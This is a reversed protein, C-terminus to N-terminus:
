KAVNFKGKSVILDKNKLNYLYAGSNLHSVNLTKTEKLEIEDVLRGSIDLIEISTATTGQLRISLEEKVPNPYISSSYADTEYIGVGGMQFSIDDLYLVSGPINTVTNSSVATMTLTDPAGPDTYTITADVLTYANQISTIQYEMEGVPIQVNNVNDWRTLTLGVFSTDNTAPGGKYYFLVRAPRQTFGVNSIGSFFDGTGSMLYGTLTDGSTGVTTELKAAYTGTYADTSKSTTVPLGFGSFMNLTVWNDPDEYTGYDTWTEFGANPISQSFVSTSLSAAVAFLLLKKKM